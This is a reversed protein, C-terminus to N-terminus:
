HKSFTDFSVSWDSYLLRLLMIIITIVQYSYTNRNENFKLMCSTVTIM